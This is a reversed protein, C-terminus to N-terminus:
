VALGGFAGLAISIPRLASTVKRTFQRLQTHVDGLQKLYDQNIRIDITGSAISTTM